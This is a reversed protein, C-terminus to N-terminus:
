LMSYNMKFLILHCENNPNITAFDDIDLADGESLEIDNVKCSGELVLLYSATSIDISQTPKGAWVEIFKNKFQIPLKAFGPERDFITYTTPDTVIGNPMIWIQLYRNNSDSENTLHHFISPGCWFHQVQGAKAVNNNGKDDTHRCEGEIMYNIIDLGNHEHWTTIFGPKTRDDNITKVPGWNLYNPDKYNMCSFSRYSQYTDDDKWSKPIFGRTNAPRIKM